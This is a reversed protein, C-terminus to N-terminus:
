KFITYGYLPNYTAFQATKKNVCHVPVMLSENTEPNIAEFVYWDNDERLYTFSYEPIRKKLLDQANNVTLNRTIRLPM